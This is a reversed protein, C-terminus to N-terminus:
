SIKKCLSISLINTDKKINKEQNITTTEVEKPNKEDSKLSILDEKLLDKM